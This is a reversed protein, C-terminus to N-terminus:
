IAGATRQALSATSVGAQGGFTAKEREQLKKRRQSALGFFAEQELEKSLGPTQDGYIESLKTITPQVEAINAYAERSLNGIQETSLGSTSLQKELQSINEEAVNINSLAAGTRINAKRLSTELENIGQPGKMLALAIQSRQKTPDGVGYANLYTSLQTKLEDPAKDIRAFVNDVRAKAEDISVAGGILSNYTEQNALEGLNYQNFLDRYTQEATIYQGPSYVPLGLAKRGENGAFRTRYAQTDPLMLSAEEAGYGETMFRKIEPILTDLGNDKFEKELIAFASRRNQELAAAAPDPITQNGKAPIIETTGDSYSITVSGDSNTVRGTETRPAPTGGTTSTTGIGPVKFTTGSFLVTSGAKQRAALTKNASIAQNIQATTVKQGTAATVAKAISAATDGKQVTVRGTNKDVKAM